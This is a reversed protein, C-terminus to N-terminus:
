ALGLPDVSQQQTAAAHPPARPPASLLDLHREIDDARTVFEIIRMPGRCVPCVTVDVKFVRALMKSWPARSPMKPKACVKAMGRGLLPLVLQHAPSERRGPVVEARLKAHSSLVGSFRVTHFRPPPVLAALRAIFDLPSLVVATTGDRFPRKLRLCVRGDRMSSLREESLPPRALYRCMQFLRKKDRGDIRRDAFVGFGEHEVRLTGDTPRPDNPVEVMRKLPAGARPGFAATGSASAGYCQALVPDDTFLTESDGV